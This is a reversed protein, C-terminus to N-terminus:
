MRSKGSESVSFILLFLKKVDETTAVHMCADVM